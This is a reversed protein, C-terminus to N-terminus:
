HFGWNWAKVAIHDAFNRGGSFADKATSRMQRFLEITEGGLAVFTASARYHLHLYDYAPGEGKHTLLGLAVGFAEEGPGGISFYGDGRRYMAILNEEAIRATM